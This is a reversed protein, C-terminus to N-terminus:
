GYLQCKGCSPLECNEAWKMGSGNIRQTVRVELECENTLEDLLLTKVMNRDFVEVSDNENALNEHEGFLKRPFADWDCCCQPRRGRRWILSTSSRPEPIEQLVRSDVIHASHSFGAIKWDAGTLM